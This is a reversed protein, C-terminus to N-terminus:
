NSDWIEVQIGLPFGLLIGPAIFDADLGFFVTSMTEWSAATRACAGAASESSPNHRSPYGLKPSFVPTSEFMKFRRAPSEVM